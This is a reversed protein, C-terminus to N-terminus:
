LAMAFPAHQATWRALRDREHERLDLFRVGFEWLGNDALGSWCVKGKCEITTPGLQLFVLVQEGADVRRLASFRAGEEALDVTLTCYSAAGKRFSVWACVPTEVRDHRRRDQTLTNVTTYRDARVDALIM